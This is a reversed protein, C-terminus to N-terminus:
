AASLVARGGRRAACGFHPTQTESVSNTGVRARASAARFFSIAQAALAIRVAALRFVVKCCLRARRPRSKCEQHGECTPRVWYHGHIMCHSTNSSVRKNAHYQRICYPCDICIIKADHLAKRASTHASKHM